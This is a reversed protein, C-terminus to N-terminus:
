QTPVRQQRVAGGDGSEHIEPRVELVPQITQAIPHGGEFAGGRGRHDAPQDDRAERRREGGGQSAAQAAHEVLEVARQSRAREADRLHPGTLRRSSDSAAIFRVGRSLSLSMIASAAITARPRSARPTLSFWGSLTASIVSTTRSPARSPFDTASSMAS